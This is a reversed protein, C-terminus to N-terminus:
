YRVYVPKETWNAYISPEQDTGTYFLSNFYPVLFSSYNVTFVLIVRSLNGWFLLIGNCPFPM